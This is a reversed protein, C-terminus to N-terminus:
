PVLDRSPVGVRGLIKAARTDDAPTPAGEAIVVPHVRLREIEAHTAGEPLKVVLEVAIAESNDVAAQDFIYNGISYFVWKGDIKEAPQVVHPHGGIVIDAGAQVAAKAFKKQADNPAFKHEDGAHFTVVVFAAEERAKKCAARLRKEDEIRAVYDNRTIGMDNKSAFSAGIFAIKLGRVDVLMPTWASELDLGVGVHQVGAKDLAKLTEKVGRLDQDMAHNNALNVANFKYKALTEAHEPRAWLVAYRKGPPTENPKKATTFPNELNAFTFDVERYLAAMPRFPFEPDGTRALVKAIRRGFIVDGVSLFRARLPEPPPPPAPETTAAAVTTTTPLPASASATDTTVSPTPPPPKDGTGAGAGCGALVPLSACLICHALRLLRPSWVFAM